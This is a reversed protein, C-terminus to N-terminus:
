PTISYNARVITEATDSIDIYDITVINLARGGWCPDASVGGPKQRIMAALIPNWRIALDQPNGPIVTHGEGNPTLPAGLEFMKLDASAPKGTPRAQDLCNDLYPAMIAPDEIGGTSSKYGLSRMSNDVPFLLPGNGLLVVKGRLQSITANEPAQSPPLYAHDGFAAVVEKQVMNGQSVATVRVIVTESPHSTLWNTIQAAAARITVNVVYAPGGHGYMFYGPLSRMVDGNGFCIVTSGRKNPDDDSYQLGTLCNRLFTAQSTNGFWGTACADSATVPAWTRAYGPPCSWCEGGNRPDYFSGTALTDPTWFFGCRFDFFRAGANLQGTFDPNQCKAYDAPLMGPYMPSDHTGPIAVCRLPRNAILDSLQGMWNPLDISDPAAM